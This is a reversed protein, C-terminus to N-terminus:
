RSKEIWALVRVRLWVCANFPPYLAPSIQTVARAVPPALTLLKGTLQANPFLGRIRTVAVGKVDQNRPNDVTFDDWLVRELARWQV